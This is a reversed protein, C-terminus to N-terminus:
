AKHAIQDSLVIIQERLHGVGLWAIAEDMSRYVRSDIRAEQAVVAYARALGYVAGSNAVIAGKSGFTRGEGKEMDAAIMVETTTLESVDTLYRCDALEDVAYKGGYERNMEIVHQDLEIPTLKGYILTLVFNHEEFYTREIPM